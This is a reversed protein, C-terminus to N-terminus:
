DVRQAVTIHDSLLTHKINKFKLVVLERIQQKRPNTNYGLRASCKLWSGCREGVVRVTKVSARLYSDNPHKLKAPWKPNRQEELNPFIWFVLVEQKPEPLPMAPADVNGLNSMIKPETGADDKQAPAQLAVNESQKADAHLVLPVEYGSVMNVVDTTVTASPVVTADSSSAIVTVNAMKTEDAVVKPQLKQTQTTLMPTTVSALACSM